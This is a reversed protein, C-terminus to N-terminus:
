ICGSLARAVLICPINCFADENLKSNVITDLRNFESILKNENISVKYIDSYRRGDENEFSNVTMIKKDSCYYLYGNHLSPGFINQNDNKPNLKVKRIFYHQSYTNASIIVLIIILIFNNIYKYRIM